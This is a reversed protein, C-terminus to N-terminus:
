LDDLRSAKQYCTEIGTRGVAQTTDTRGTEGRGSVTLATNQRNWGKPLCQMLEDAWVKSTGPWNLARTLDSQCTAASSSRM